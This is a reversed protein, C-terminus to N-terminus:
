TATLTMVKYRALSGSLTYRTLEMDVVVAKSHQRPLMLVEAPFSNHPSLEVMGIDYRQKAHRYAVAPIRHNGLPHVIPIDHIKDLRVRIRVANLKYTGVWIKGAESQSSLNISTM